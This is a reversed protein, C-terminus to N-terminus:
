EIEATGGAPDGMTGGAELLEWQGGLKVIGLTGWM